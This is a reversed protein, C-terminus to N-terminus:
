LELVWQALPKWVKEISHRGAIMGIHGCSANLLEAKPIQDKLVCATEYEVLRDKDSTIILSPCLLEEPIIDNGAIKWGGTGPLNKLFWDSICHQAVGCPLALGDNLWDEVVVFLEEEHSGDDMDLFRSFKKAAMFPDLSAFVTQIWDVDLRGKEEIAPFASPAWFKVCNLLRQSGAHFDWSAALMIVSALSEQECLAASLLLTGGMCYGLAHIPRGRERHLFKIAPLLRDMIIADIDQAGDDEVIDGWDFLYTDINQSSLYRLMSREEMLDFISSKNILSPILLIAPNEPVYKISPIKKITALGKQWINELPLIVRRYPHQQYKHIGLLMKEIEEPMQMQQVDGSGFAQPWSSVAM